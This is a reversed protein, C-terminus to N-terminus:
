VPIIQMAEADRQRRKLRNESQQQRAVADCLARWARYKRCGRNLLLMAVPPAEKCILLIHTRKQIVHTHIRPTHAIVVDTYPLLLSAAATCSWDHKLSKGRRWYGHQVHSHNTSLLLLDFWSLM